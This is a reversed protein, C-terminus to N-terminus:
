RSFPAFLERRSLYILYLLLQCVVLIVITELRPTPAHFPLVLTSNQFENKHYRGAMTWSTTHLCYPATHALNTSTVETRSNKRKLVRSVRHLLRDGRSKLQDYADLM